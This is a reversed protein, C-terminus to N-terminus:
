ISHPTMALQRKLYRVAAKLQTDKGAVGVDRYDMPVVINPEIGKKNIDRGNPTVYRQTTVKIASGGPLDYITQVVGKGFTKTGLLVGIKSDQIAGATIESASASYQNVLVVLPHPPIADQNADDTEVHGDRDIRSVIPGDSIFKSSIDVAADLLGGGNDRLDLIFARAGQKMLSNLASTVEASSREGFDYLQIYGIDGDVMHSTSSPVQIVQREISYSRRDAKNRRIKLDVMSGARGRIMNMVLDLDLGKATRGNVSEIIDGRKLGARAAPTGDIPQIINIEHTKPDKGIYIGVGGFDGGQIFESLSTKDRPSLFVTYPDHLAGLAGAIAAFTLNGQTAQGGYKHLATALVMNAQSDVLSVPANSAVDVAPLQATMHKSKLYEIIGQREGRLLAAEDVPKYYVRRIKDLSMDLMDISHQEDGTASQGNADMAVGGLNFALIPNHDRFKWAIQQRHSQVLLAGALLAIIFVLIAIIPRTRAM